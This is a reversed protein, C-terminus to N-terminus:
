FFLHDLISFKLLSWHLKIRGIIEKFLYSIQCLGKWFGSTEVKARSEFYDNFHSIEKGNNKKTM